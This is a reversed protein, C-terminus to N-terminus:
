IVDYRKRIAAQRIPPIPIPPVLVPFPIHIRHAADALRKRLLDAHVLQNFLGKARRQFHDPRFGTRHKERLRIGFLQHKLVDDSAISPHQAPRGHGPGLAESPRHERRPRRQNNRIHLLVRAM